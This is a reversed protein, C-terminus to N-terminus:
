VATGAANPRNVERPATQQSHFYSGQTLKAPCPGPRGACGRRGQCRTTFGGEPTEFRGEQLQPRM